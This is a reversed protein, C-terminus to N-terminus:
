GLTGDICDSQTNTLFCRGAWPQFNVTSTPISCACQLKVTKDEDPISILKSGSDHFRADDDEREWYGSVYLTRIYPRAHVLLPMQTADTRLDFWCKGASADGIIVFKLM